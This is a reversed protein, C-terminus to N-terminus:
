SGTQLVLTANNNEATRFREIFIHHDDGSLSICENAARWLDIWRDGPIAAAVPNDGWHDIYTVSKADTFPHKAYFDDVEYMSWISTFHCELRVEDCLNSRETFLRDDEEYARKLAQRIATKAKQLRVFKEPKLVDELSEAVSDLDCLANHINKFEDKTLTPNVLM